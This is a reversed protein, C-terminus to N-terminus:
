IKVVDLAGRFLAFELWGLVSAKSLAMRQLRFYAFAESESAIFNFNRKLQLLKTICHSVFKKLSRMTVQVIRCCILYVLITEIQLGLFGCLWGM